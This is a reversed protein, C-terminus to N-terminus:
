SVSAHKLDRRTCEPHTRPSCLLGFVRLGRPRRRLFHHVATSALLKVTHFIQCLKLCQTNEYGLLVPTMRAISHELCITQCQVAKPHVNVSHTNQCSQNRKRTKSLNLEILNITIKRGEFIIMILQLARMIHIRKNFLMRKLTKRLCGRELNKYGSLYCQNNILGEKKVIIQYLLQVIKIM